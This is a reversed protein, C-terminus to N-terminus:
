SEGAQKLWKKSPLPNKEQMEIKKLKLKEGTEIEVMYTTLGPKPLLPASPMILLTPDAWYRHCQFTLLQTKWLLVLVLVHFPANWTRLTVDTLGYKHIGSQGVQFLLSVKYSLLLSFCSLVGLGARCSLVPLFLSSDLLLLFFGSHVFECLGFM